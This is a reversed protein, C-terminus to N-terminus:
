LRLFAAIKDLFPEKGIIKRCKKELFNNLKSLSIINGTTDKHPILIRLQRVTGSLFQIYLLHHNSKTKKVIFFSDINKWKVIHNSTLIGEDNITYIQKKTNKEQEVYYIIAIIGLILAFGYNSYIIAQVILFFVILTAIEHWYIHKSQPSFIPASWTYLVKKSSQQKQM